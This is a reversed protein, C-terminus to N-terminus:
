VNYRKQLTKCLMEDNLILNCYAQFHIVHRSKSIGSICTCYGSYEACASAHVCAHRLWQVCLVRPLVSYFVLRVRTHM